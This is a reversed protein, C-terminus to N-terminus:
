ALAKSIRNAYVGALAMGSKAGGTALWLRSAVQRCGDNMYPRIGRQRVLKNYNKPAHPIIREYIQEERQPTWNPPVLASGDGIWTRGPGHTTRVVQKYPAWPRILNSVKSGGHFVWSIGKRGTIERQFQPLLAASWIGAAVIVAGSYLAGSELRLWGDGVAMVNTEIVKGSLVADIDVQFLELSKTIPPIGFECKLTEMGYLTSLTSMSQELDKSPIMTLWSPKLHGGSPPSGADEERRDFVTVPHGDKRLKAAIVQGFCGGGVIYISKSFEDVQSPKPAANLDLLSRRTAYM